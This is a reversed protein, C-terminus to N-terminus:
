IKTGCFICYKADDDNKKGCKDCLKHNTDMKSITTTNPRLAFFVIMLIFSVIGLLVSAVIVIGVINPYFNTNISAFSFFLVICFLWLFLFYRAFKSAKNKHAKLNQTSENKFSNKDLNIQYIEFKEKSQWFKEGCKPCDFNENTNIEHNCKTCYNSM